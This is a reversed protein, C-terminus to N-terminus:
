SDKQLSLRMSQFQAYNRAASRLTKSECNFSSPRTHYLVSRHYLPFARSWIDTNELTTYQLIDSLHGIFSLYMPIGHCFIRLQYFHDGFYQLVVSFQEAKCTVMAMMSVEVKEEEVKAAFFACAAAIRRPHVEVVSNSLYFRRFFTIATALVTESTRLDNLMANPGIIFQIQHAHFQVLTEQDRLSIEDSCPVLAEICPLEQQYRRHFGSAFKRVRGVLSITSKSAETALARQRCAMLADASFIWSKAQTSCAFDM